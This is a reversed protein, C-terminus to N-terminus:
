ISSRIEIKEKAVVNIKLQVLSTKQSSHIKRFRHTTPKNNAQLFRTSFPVLPRNCAQTLCNKRIILQRLPSHNLVSRTSLAHVAFVIRLMEMFHLISPRAYNVCRHVTNVDLRHAYSVSCFLLIDIVLWNNRFTNGNIDKGYKSPLHTRHNTHKWAQELDGIMAEWTTRSCAIAKENGFWRNERYQWNCYTM